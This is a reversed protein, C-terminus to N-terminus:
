STADRCGGDHALGPRDHPGGPVRPEAGDVRELEDVGLEGLDEGDGVLARTGVGPRQAPCGDPERRGAVRDQVRSLLEHESAM